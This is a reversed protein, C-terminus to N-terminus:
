FYIYMFVRARKACNLRCLLSSAHRWARRKVQELIQASHLSILALQQKDCLPHFRGSIYEARYCDYIWRGRLFLVPLFDIRFGRFSNEPALLFQTKKKTYHVIHLKEVNRTSTHIYYACRKLYQNETCATRAARRTNPFDAHACTVGSGWKHANTHTHTFVAWM